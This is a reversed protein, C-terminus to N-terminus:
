CSHMWDDIEMSLDARGNSFHMSLRLECAAPLQEAPLDVTFVGDRQMSVRLQIRGQHRRKFRMDYRVTRGVPLVREGRNNLFVVRVRIKDSLLEISVPALQTVARWVDSAPSAVGCGLPGQFFAAAPSTAGTPRWGCERAAVDLSAAEAQDPRGDAAALTSCVLLTVSWSWVGRM